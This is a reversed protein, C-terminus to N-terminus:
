FPQGVLGCAFFVGSAYKRFYTSSTKSGLVFDAIMKMLRFFLLRWGM